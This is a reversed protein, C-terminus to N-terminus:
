TRREWTKVVARQSDGIWGAPGLGQWMIGKEKKEKKWGASLMRETFSKSGVPTIANDTCWAAYTRYLDRVRIQTGERVEILGEDPAEAIFQRTTDVDDRYDATWQSVQEPEDLGRERYAALGELLWNLIVEPEEQAMRRGLNREGGEGRSNIFVQGFKVPKVRNWIANDTSSIRPLFNTAMFVTYEPRWDMYEGYLTRTTQTDAGVISKVLSENLKSGADLESQLVVRKGRLKHLDESPGKYGQNRPQFASAPAVAAFDGLVTTIAELFQTKGTGSEGHILFIAREDLTGLLAYGCARQLYERVQVDPLVEEM